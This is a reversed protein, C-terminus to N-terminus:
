LPNAAHQIDSPTLEITLKAQNYAVHTTPKITLSKITLWMTNDQDYAVHNNTQDYAVQNYAM